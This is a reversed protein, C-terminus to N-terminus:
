QLGAAALEREKVCINHGANRVMGQFGNGALLLVRIGYRNGMVFCRLTTAPTKAKARRDAMTLVLGLGMGTLLKVFEYSRLM